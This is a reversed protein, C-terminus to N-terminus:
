PHRPPRPLVAGHRAPARAHLGQPHAILGPQRSLFPAEYPFPASDFEVLKTLPEKVPLSQSRIPRARLTNELRNKDVNSNGENAYALESRCDVSRSRTWRNEELRANVASGHDTLRYLPFAGRGEAKAGGGSVRDFQASAVQYKSGSARGLFELWLRRKPPRGEGM